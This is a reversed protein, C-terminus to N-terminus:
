KKGKNTVTKSYQVLRKSAVYGRARLFTHVGSNYAYVSMLIYEVKKEKALREVEDLLADGIGRRRWGKETVAYPLYFYNESRYLTVYGVVKGAARRGQPVTAVLMLADRSGIFHRFDDAKMKQGPYNEIEKVGASMKVIAPLDGDRAKRITIRERAPERAEAKGTKGRARKGSTRRM